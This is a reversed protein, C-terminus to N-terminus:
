YWISRTRHAPVMERTEVGEVKDEGEEIAKAKDWLYFDIMVSNVVVADKTSDEHQMSTIRERVAEVALVSAARISVEERSGSPLPIQARLLGLLTPPYTLMRLHHLIQPVRYDAFMTLEGVGFPLIPHM